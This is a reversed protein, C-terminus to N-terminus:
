HRRISHGVSRGFPHAGRADTLSLQVLLHSRDGALAPTVAHRWFIGHIVTGTLLRGVSFPLFPYPSGPRRLVLASVLPCSDLPADPPGYRPKGSGSTKKDQLSTVSMNLPLKTALIALNKAKMIPPPSPTAQCYRATIHLFIPIGM